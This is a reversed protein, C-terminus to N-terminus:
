DQPIGMNHVYRVRLLSGFRWAGTVGSGARGLIMPDIPAPGSM